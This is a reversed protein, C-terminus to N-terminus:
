EGYLGQVAVDKKLFEDRVRTDNQVFPKGPTASDVTKFLSPFEEEQPSPARWPPHPTISLPEERAWVM